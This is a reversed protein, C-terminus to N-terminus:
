ISVPERWLKGLQRQLSGNTFSVGGMLDVEGRQREGLEVHVGGVAKVGCECNIVLILALRADTEM